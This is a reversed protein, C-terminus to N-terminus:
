ERKGGKLEDQLQALSDWDNQSALAAQEPWTAPNSISIRAEKLMANLQEVDADALQKYTTIGTEGL